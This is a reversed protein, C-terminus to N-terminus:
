PPLPPPGGPASQAPPEAAPAATVGRGHAGPGQGAQAGYVPRAGLAPPVSPLADPEAAIVAAPRQRAPEVAADAFGSVEGPRDPPDAAPPEVADAATVGAGPEPVVPVGDRDRWGVPEGNEYDDPWLWTRGTPRGDEAEVILHEFQFPQRPAPADAPPDAAPRAPARCGLQLLTRCASLRMRDDPVRLALRLMEEILAPIHPAILARAGPATDASHTTPHKRAYAGRM